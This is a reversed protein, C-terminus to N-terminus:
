QLSLYKYAEVGAKNLEAGNMSSFAFERASLPQLSCNEIESSCSLEFDGNSGGCWGLPGVVTVIGSKLALRGREGRLVSRLM